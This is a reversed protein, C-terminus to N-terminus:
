PSGGFADMLHERSIGYEALLPRADDLHVPDPLQSMLHEVTDAPYGARKLTGAIEDKPLILHEDQM